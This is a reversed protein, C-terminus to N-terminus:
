MALFYGIVMSALLLIGLTLMLPTIDDKGNDNRQPHSM